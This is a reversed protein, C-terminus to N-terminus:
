PRPRPFRPRLPRGMRELRRRRASGTTVGREQAPINGAFGDDWMQPRMNAYHVVRGGPWVVSQLLRPAPLEYPPEM